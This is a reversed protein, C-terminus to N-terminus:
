LTCATEGPAPKYFTNSLLKLGRTGDTGVGIDMGQTRSITIQEAYVPLALVLGMLFIHIVRKMTQEKGNM